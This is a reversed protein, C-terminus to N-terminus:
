WLNAKPCFHVWFKYRYFLHYLFIISTIRKSISQAIKQVFKCSNNKWNILQDFQCIWPCNSFRLNHSNHFFNVVIECNDVQLLIISVDNKYIFTSGLIHKWGMTCVKLLLLPLTRAYKVLIKVWKKRTIYYPWDTLAQRAKAYVNSIRWDLIFERETGPGIPCIFRRGLTQHEM